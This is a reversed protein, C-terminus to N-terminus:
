IHESLKTTKSKLEKIRELISRKVTAAVIDQHIDLIDVIKQLEEAAGLRLAWTADSLSVSELIEGDEGCDAISVSELFKYADKM